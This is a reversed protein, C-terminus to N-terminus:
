YDVDRGSAVWGDTGGAVSVVDYGQQELYNCAKMSRGGSKCILWVTQDKPVSALQDPLDNLPIHHASPVHGEEFEFLERVDIVHAGSGIAVELEDLSVERGM